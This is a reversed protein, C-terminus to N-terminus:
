LGSYFFYYFFVHPFKVVCAVQTTDKIGIDQGASGGELASVKPFGTWLRYLASSSEDNEYFL